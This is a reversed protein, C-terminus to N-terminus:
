VAKLIEGRNELQGVLFAITQGRRVLEADVDCGVERGQDVGGIRIARHPALHQRQAALQPRERRHHLVRQGLIRVRRHRAEHMAIGVPHQHQHCGLAGAIAAIAGAAADDAVGRGVEAPLLVLRLDLVNRARRLDAVHQQAAAIRQRHRRLHQVLQQAVQAGNRMDLDDADAAAHRDEQRLADVVLEALHDAFVVREPDVDVDVMGLLDRRLQALGAGAHGVGPNRQAVLAHQQRADVVRHVDLAHQHM